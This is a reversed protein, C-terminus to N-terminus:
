NKPIKSVGLSKVKGRSLVEILIKKKILTDIFNNFVVEDDNPDSIIIDIDGSNLTGRRYSGMIELLSDNNKVSNISLEIARLMFFNSKNNM